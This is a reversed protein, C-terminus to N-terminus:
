TTKSLQDIILFSYLIYDASNTMSPYCPSPRLEGDSMSKLHKHELKRTQQSGIHKVVLHSNMFASKQHLENSIGITTDIYDYARNTEHFVFSFKTFAHRCHLCGLTVSFTTNQGMM